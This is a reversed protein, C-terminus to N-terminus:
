ANTSLYYSMVTRHNNSEASPMTKNSPTVFKGTLDSVECGDFKAEAAPLVAEIREGDTYIVVNERVTGTTSDFMKSCKIAKKAM